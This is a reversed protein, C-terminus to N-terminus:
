PQRTPGDTLLTGDARNGLQRLVAASTEDGLSRVAGDGFLFNCVSPHPSGFGGVKLDSPTAAEGGKPPRAAAALKTTGGVPHDLPSGTNRLTARTGSIWGLDDADLLKEGVYITNSTGDTVDQASIRSNLFLVGNNGVDIPSDVGHHCGAYNSTGIGAPHPSYDSPCTFGQIHLARVPANKASYAGGDFDVHKFTVTEEVYPLLQVLWSIHNGQAVNHIPGKADVTGPPLVGQASEYNQLAVGIRALHNVCTLRHAAERTAQLAPLMMGM